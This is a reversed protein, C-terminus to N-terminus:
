KNSKKHNKFYLVLGISLIAIAGIFGVTPLMLPNQVYFTTTQSIGANGALDWAYLTLNHFGINLDELSINSTIPIKEEGDLSYASKSTLESTNFILNVNPSYINNELGNITIIPPITDIVFYVIENRTVNYTLYYEYIIPIGYDGSGTATGNWGAFGTATANIAIWHRGEPLEAFNVKINFPFNNSHQRYLAEIDILRRESEWSTQYSLESLPLPQNNPQPVSVNFSFSIDRSPLFTNNIPSILLIEPLKVSDPAAVEGQKISTHIYPNAIASNNQNLAITFLLFTLILTLAIKRM